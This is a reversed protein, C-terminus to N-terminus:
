LVIDTYKSEIGFAKYKRGGAEYFKGFFEIFQLRSSHVYSGLACLAFNLSHGIIFIIIFFLSGIFGSGGLSGLKNFVSGIVGTSLGLALIRSYSLIDSLYGTIDYLSMFGSTIKKIINTEKRGQTLVLGLVSGVSLVIGIVSLVGGFVIAPLGILLFMWFGVDFLADAWKKQKILMYAKMGLGALIHLLGVAFSVVLMTLPDSVPDFWIPKLSIDVGFFTSSVVGVADGFFTGFMFGWFTTSIGCFMFLKLMRRLDKTMDFLKLGVFCAISMVIGYGADSLMMGFLLFYFPAVMFTPDVGRYKPLSYMETIAEFPETIANNKLKVPPEENEYPESIEYYCLHKDLLESLESERDEPFWGELVFCTDTAVVNNKVACLNKKNTLIDILKRVNDYNDNSIEHLKNEFTELDIKLSLLKKELNETCESATLNFDPFRIRNFNLSM